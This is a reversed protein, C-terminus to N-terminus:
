QFMTVANLTVANYCQLMIVNYCQLMTANYCQLMTVTYCQLMEINCHLTVPNLTVVPPWVVTWLPPTEQQVVAKDQELVELRVPIEEDMRMQQTSLLM